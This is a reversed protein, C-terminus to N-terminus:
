DGSDNEPMLFGSKEVRAVLEPFKGSWYDLQDQEERSRRPLNRNRASLLFCTLREDFHRRTAVLEGKHYVPLEIGQMARELAANHLAEYDDRLALSWATDFYAGKNRARLRYASQRSMGVARAAEAVNGSAALEFLFDAMRKRTWRAQDLPAPVPSASRRAPPPHNPQKM